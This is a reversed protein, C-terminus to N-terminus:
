GRFFGAWEEATVYKKFCVVMLNNVNSRDKKIVQEVLNKLM